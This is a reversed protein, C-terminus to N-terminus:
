VLMSIQKTNTAKNVPADMVAQCMTQVEYKHTLNIVKLRQTFSNMTKLGGMEEGQTKLLEQWVIIPLSFAFM